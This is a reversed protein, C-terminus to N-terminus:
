SFDTSSWQALKESFNRSVKGIGADITDIATATANGLLTAAIDHRNGDDLIQVSGDPATIKVIHAAFSLQQILRNRKLMQHDDERSYVDRKIPIESLAKSIIDESARPTIGRITVVLKSEELAKANKAIDDEIRKVDAKATANALASELSEREFLLHDDAWISVEGEPLDRGILINRIDFEVM